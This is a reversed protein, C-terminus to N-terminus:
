NFYTCFESKKSVNSKYSKFEVGDISVMVSTLSNGSICGTDICIKNMYQFPEPIETHGFIHFKNFPNADNKIFSFCENRAQFFEERTEFEDMRPVKLNRINKLSKNDEKYLYKNECPAHTIIAFPSEISYFSNNYIKFFKEKLEKDSQLLLVTQFYDGIVKSVERSPYIKGNLYEAVWWEHNGIVIYFHELNNEILEITKKINKFEGKDIYDGVLVHKVYKTDDIVTIKNGVVKIGKGDQLMEVFEHYSGHIDGVVCIKEDPIVKIANMQTEYKFDLKFNKIDLPNKTFMGTFDIINFNFHKKECEKKLFDMQKNNTVNIVFLKYTSPFNLSESIEREDFDYIFLSNIEHSEILKDLRYIVKNFTVQSNKEDSVVAIVSYPILNM